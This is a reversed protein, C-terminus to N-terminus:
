GRALQQQVAEVIRGNFLALRITRLPSAPYAAFFEQVARAYARACVEVPVAFIGASIAPFSVSRWGREHARLFASRLTEVLKDEEDGQGVRPGVAHIVGKFRLWGATTVVAEGVPIPGRERLIRDGEEELEPGAAEAIAAAVGAGHSLGGNAANVIAESPEDLLDYVVATFSRGGPFELKGILEGEM